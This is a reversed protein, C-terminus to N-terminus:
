GGVIFDKGIYWTLLRVTIGFDSDFCVAGSIIPEHYIWLIPNVDNVRPLLLPPLWAPDPQFACDTMQIRFVCVADRGVCVCVCGGGEEGGTYDYNVISNNIERPAKNVPGPAREM